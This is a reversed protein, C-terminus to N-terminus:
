FCILDNPGAGDAVRDGVPEWVGSSRVLGAKVTLASSKM